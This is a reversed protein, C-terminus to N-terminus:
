YVYKDPRDRVTTPDIRQCVIGSAKHELDLNILSIVTVFITLIHM